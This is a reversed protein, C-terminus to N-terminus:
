LESDETEAKRLKSYISRLWAAQKETPEGGFLGLEDAMDHVFERERPRLQDSRECCWEAVRAWPPKQVPRDRYVIRVQPEPATTLAAALDHLDCGEAALVRQIARVTAVVEGDADSALRPILRSLKGLIPALNAM